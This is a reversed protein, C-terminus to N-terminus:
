KKGGGVIAGIVMGTITGGLMGLIPGVCAPGLWFGLGMGAMGFLMGLAFVGQDRTKDANCWPCVTGTFPVNKGCSSCKM